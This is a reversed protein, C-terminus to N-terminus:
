HDCLCSSEIDEIVEDSTVARINAFCCMFLEDCEMLRMSAFDDDHAHIAFGRKQFCHLGNVKHIM